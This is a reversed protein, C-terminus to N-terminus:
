YLSFLNLFFLFVLSHDMSCQLAIRNANMNAYNFYSIRTASAVGACTRLLKGLCPQPMYMGCDGPERQMYGRFLMLGDCELSM